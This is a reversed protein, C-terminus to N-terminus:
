LKIVNDMYGMVAEIRKRHYPEFVPSLFIPDTGSISNAIFTKAPKIMELLTDPDASLLYIYLDNVVLIDRGSGRFDKFFEEAVRRNRELVMDISLGMELTPLRIERSYRYVANKFGQLFKSLRVGIDKNQPALDIIYIRNDLGRRILERVIDSTYKTRGRGTESVILTYRDLLLDVNM